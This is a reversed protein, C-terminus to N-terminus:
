ALPLVDMSVNIGIELTDINTFCLNVKYNKIILIVDIDRAGDDRGIVKTAQRKLTFYVLLASSNNSKVRM